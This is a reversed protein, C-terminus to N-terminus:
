RHQSQRYNKWDGSPIAVMKMSEDCITYVVAEILGDLTRVKVIEKSYLDTTPNGTHGELDDLNLWMHDPIEYIDGVITSGEALEITPYGNGTDYMKAQLVGGTYLLTAGNLVHHNTEGHLLTGYVFLNM